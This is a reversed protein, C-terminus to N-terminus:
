FTPSKNLVYVENKRQEDFYSRLPDRVFFTVGSPRGTLKACSGFHFKDRINISQKENNKNLIQSTEIFIKYFLRRFFTMM